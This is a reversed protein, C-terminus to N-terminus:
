LTEPQVDLAVSVTFAAGTAIVPVGTAQGPVVVDNASAEVPPVQLLLMGPVAVTSAAPRTVPTAAPVVVITYSLLQPVGAETTTVILGIGGAIVGDLGVTHLPPPVTVTLSGEAPPVQLLEFEATAGTAVVPM